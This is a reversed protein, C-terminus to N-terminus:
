SRMARPPQPAMPPSWCATRRSTVNSFGMSTLYSAVAQAQQQTPAHNALVQESTMLQAPKGGSQNKANNAIFADLAAKNRLKLAVVVHMPQTMPLAGIVTDGQRLQTTHAVTTFASASSTAASANLTATGCLALVVALALSKRRFDASLTQQMSNERSVEATLSTLFSACACRVSLDIPPGCLAFCCLSLRDIASTDRDKATV